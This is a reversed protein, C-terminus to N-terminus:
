KRYRRGRWGGAAKIPWGAAWEPLEGMISEFESVSGFGEDVESVLEDHVQLVVPYERRKCNVIAFRLIDNAVAQVVNETLKGSYTSMRSWGMPGMKPNTNYGMYSLELGGRSSPNLRPQHYAIARGSPLNCYLVDGSCVYSIARVHYTKGPNMVACIAAGELGFYEQRYDRDWPRGRFQGGWFEVIAPSAERWGLIGKKIEDDTLFADAGFNKWAGIWGAYGSALEAVKGIKKRLPHHKGVMPAEWWQPITLDQYGAAKMFEEFPTGTIKAASMEYIKGHTRFVELRWSEGALAALVVAEIASYDSSIFDKGPAATFLGRLCGSMAKVANGFFYEVTSLSRTRLITFADEMAAANWEVVKGHEVDGCWKCFDGASHHGCVGCHNLEPGSNPLNQPQPGNGTARGTRAAHFAFLDHLRGDASVRNRISYLKKVSASGVLSRIELARRQDPTLWEIKLAADLADEDLSYLGINLWQLLKSVESAREVAGGTLRCLEANYQETAQDLVAICDHVGGMDVHVGRVNIEKDAQFFELEVPTLDPIRSSLESETQIDRLNYSYLNLADMPDADPTIRTAPNAKTPKRPVSFKDLLRKGEKDKRLSLNLVEGAMDLSPPLGWARAKGMSCRFRELLPMPWGYKRVCTNRWVWYEFLANHAEIPGSYDFLDAPNPLGPRWFRPGKGDKLDYWLSLVETSPHEAYTAAGVVSLGKKTANPLATWKDGAWIYGAESYTEFDLDPLVTSVGRGANLITGAPLESAHRPPPPAIRM